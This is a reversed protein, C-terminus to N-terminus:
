LPQGGRRITGYESARGGNVRRHISGAIRGAQLKALEAKEGAYLEDVTSRWTELWRDFFEWRLPVKAHLEEHVHLANRKYLGARFLVTEWFDCMVPLHAALDMRAVDVFVPGLMRDRFVRRYFTDVLLEVDARNRLDARGGADVEGGTGGSM